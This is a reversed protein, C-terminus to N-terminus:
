CIKDIQNELKLLIKKRYIGCSFGGLKRNAAVIRHCPIIILLPNSGIANAVARVSKPNNIGNAIDGYTQLQGNTVKRLQTWVKIQFETGIMQIPVQFSEKLNGDFYKSLETELQNIIHNREVKLMSKQKIILRKLKLLIKSEDVCQLSLLHSSNAVAILPGLSSGLLAINLLNKTNSSIAFIKTDKMLQDIIGNIKNDLNEIKTLM